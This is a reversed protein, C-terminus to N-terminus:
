QMVKDINEIKKNFSSLYDRKYTDLLNLIDKKMSSKIKDVESLSPENEFGQIVEIINESYKINRDLPVVFYRGDVDTGRIEKNEKSIKFNGVKNSVRFHCRCDLFSNFSIGLRAIYLNEM